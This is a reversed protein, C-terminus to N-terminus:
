EVANHHIHLADKLTHDCPLIEGKDLDDIGIKCEPTFPYSMSISENDIDIRSYDNVKLNHWM